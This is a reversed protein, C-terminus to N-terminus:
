TQKIKTYILKNIRTKTKLFWYTQKKFVFRVLSSVKGKDTGVLYPYFGIVNNRFFM